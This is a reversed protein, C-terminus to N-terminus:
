GRFDRFARFYDVRRQAEANERSGLSDAAGSAKWQSNFKYKWEYSM